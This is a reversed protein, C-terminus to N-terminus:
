GRWAFESVVCESIVRDVAIFSKSEFGEHNEEQRM